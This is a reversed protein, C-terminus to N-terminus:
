ERDGCFGNFECQDCQRLSASTEPLLDHSIVQDLLGRVDLVDQYLENSISFKKMSRVDRGVFCEVSEAKYQQKALMAYAACQLRYGRHELYRSSIKFELIAVRSGKVLVCDAIGHLGYDSSSLSVESQILANDWKLYKFTRSSNISQLDVHFKKGQKVWLPTPPRLNRREMFYPVRPCFCYQRVLSVPLSRM